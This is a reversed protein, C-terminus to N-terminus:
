DLCFLLSFLLVVLFDRHHAAHFDFWRRRGGLWGNSMRFAELPADRSFVLQCDDRYLTFPTHLVRRIYLTLYATPSLFSFFLQRIEWLIRGGDDRKRLGCFFVKSSLIIM